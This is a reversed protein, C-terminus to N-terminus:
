SAPEIFVPYESLDLHIRGNEVKVLEVQPETQDLETVIHTVKAQSGSFPIDAKISGLPQDHNQGIHDDYVAVLVKRGNRVTCEYLYFNELAPLRVCSKLGELKENVLRYTYACPWFKKFTASWFGQHAATSFSFANQWDAPWGIMLKKAGASLAVMCQRVIGVSQMRRYWTNVEVFMKDNPKRLIKRYEAARPPAVDASLSWHPTVHEDQLPYWAYVEACWVEKDGCGASRLLDKWKTIVGYSPWRADFIDYSECFGIMKKSKEFGRTVLGHAYPLVKPLSAQIYAESRADPERDYFGPIDAFQVGTLLIKVDPNAKHAAAYCEKLLVHYEEPTGVWYVEHYYENGIQYHLVPFRLGPMDNVGDGDYREVLNTIFDRLDQMNEPKPLYDTSQKIMMKAIGKLYVFSEDKIPATAWKNRFRLTSLIHVGKSQWQKTCEDLDAWNYSHKGGMPRRPEIDDWSVDSFNAWRVGTTNVFDNVIELNRYKKDHVFVYDVGFPNEWGDQVYRDFAAKDLPGPTPVALGPGSPSPRAPQGAVPASYLRSEPVTCSVGILVVAICKVIRLLVRAEMAGGKSQERAAAAPSRTV